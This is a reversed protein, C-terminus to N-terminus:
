LLYEYLGMGGIVAIWSGVIMPPGYPIETKAGGRGVLVAVLAMVGGAAATAVGSLVLLEWGRFATVLGLPLALKVDGFGFGGRAILYVLGFVSAYALAGVFARPLADETGDLVAGLALLLGAIPTGPYTIRNPIRKHDIDTIFLVVTMAAVFLYAPLVWVPGLAFAVLGSLTALGAATLLPRRPELGCAPCALMPHGPRGCRRCAAEAWRFPRDGGAQVALHHAVPGIGLGVIVSVVVHM